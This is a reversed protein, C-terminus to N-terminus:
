RRTRLGVGSRTNKKRKKEELRYERMYAQKKIKNEADEDYDRQKCKPSKPGCFRQRKYPAFGLEGCTECEFLRWLQGHEILSLAVHVASHEWDNGRGEAGTTHAILGQPSRIVNYRWLYASLARCVQALITRDANPKEIRSLLRLLHEVRKSEPADPTQELRYFIAAFDDQDPLLTRANKSKGIYM